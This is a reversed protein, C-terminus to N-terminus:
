GMCGMEYVDGMVQECEPRDILYPEMVFDGCNFSWKGGYSPGKFCDDLIGTFYTKCDNKTLVWRCDPKQVVAFYVGLNHERDVKGLSEKLRQEWTASALIGAYEECVNGILKIVTDRKKFVMSPWASNKCEKKGTTPDFPANQDAPLEPRPGNISPAPSSGGTPSAPIVVTTVVPRGGSAGAGGSGSNSGGSNGGSWGPSISGDLSGGPSGFDDWFDPEEDLEPGDM